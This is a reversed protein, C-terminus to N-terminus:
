GLLENPYTPCAVSKAYDKLGRPTIGKEFHLILDNPEADFLHMINNKYIIISCLNSLSAYM